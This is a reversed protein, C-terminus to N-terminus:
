GQQLVTSSKDETDTVGTSISVSYTSSARSFLPRMDTLVGADFRETCLPVNEYQIMM